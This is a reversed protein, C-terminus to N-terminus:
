REGLVVMALSTESFRLNVSHRLISKAPLDPAFSFTIPALKYTYEKLFEPIFPALGLTLGNMLGATVPCVLDFNVNQM